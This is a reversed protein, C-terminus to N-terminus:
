RHVQNEISFKGGNIYEKVANTSCAEAISECWVEIMKVAHEKAAVNTADKPCYLEDRVPQRWEVTEGNPLEKKERLLDAKYQTYVASEIDVFVDLEENLLFYGDFKAVDVASKVAAIVNAMNLSTWHEKEKLDNNASFFRLPEFIKDFIVSRAILAGVIEVSNLTSEIASRLISKSKEQAAREVLFEVFLERNWWLELAAALKHDQRGGLMARFSNLVLRTPYKSQLWHFFYTVADGKPYTAQSRFDFEKGCARLLSTIDATVRDFSTFNEAYSGLLVKLYSNEAKAGVDVLLNSTHRACTLILPEFIERIQADDMEALEDFSIGEIMLRDRIHSPLKSLLDVDLGESADAILDKLESLIHDIILKSTKVAASANDSMVSGSLLKTIDIGDPAPIGSEEGPYLKSYTEQWKVLLDKYRKLATQISELELQSTKGKAVFCGRLMLDTREGNKLEVVLNAALVAIGNVDTGDHGLQIIRKCQALVLANMSDSILGIEIRMYKITSEVPMRVKLFPVVHKLVSRVIGDIGSPPAGAVIIEYIMIRMWIPCSNKVNKFEKIQNIEANTTELQGEIIM